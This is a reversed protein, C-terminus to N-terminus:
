ALGGGEDERRLPSKRIFGPIWPQLGGALTKQLQLELRTKAELKFKKPKRLLESIFELM